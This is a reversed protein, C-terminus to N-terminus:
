TKLARERKIFLEMDACNWIGIPMKCERRAYEMGLRLLEKGCGKGRLAPDVIVFGFRVSSDYDERFERLKMM